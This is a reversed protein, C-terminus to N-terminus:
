SEKHPEATISFDGYYKGDYAILDNTITLHHDIWDAQMNSCGASLWEAATAPFASLFEARRMAFKVDGLYTIHVYRFPGLLPGEYGFDDMEEELHDRGHFLQIYLLAPTASKLARAASQLNTRALAIRELTSRM